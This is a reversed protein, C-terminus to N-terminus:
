NLLKKLLVKTTEYFKNVKAGSIPRDARPRTVFNIKHFSVEPWNYPWDRLVNELTVTQLILDRLNSDM